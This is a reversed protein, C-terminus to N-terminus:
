SVFLRLFLKAFLSATVDGDALAYPASLGDSNALLILTIDRGPVKLVLSSSTDRVSGFHWVLREGNYSQVFWGLGSPLAVGTSTTANTWATARLEGHVLEDNDIASDFRALDLATSVLGTATTVRDTPYDARTAKGSRDVRYPAAMRLLVAEYRKCRTTTSSRAARACHARSRTGAALRAHGPPRLRGRRHHPPLAPRRVRRGREHARCLSGPRLPLCQRAGASAHALVQRVTATSEPIDSTWRRMPDDINLGTREICQGLVVAGFSQTLDGILYPTDARAAISKEIDQKGLGAAWVVHRGQVIAASLGPIASQERLSELYREFLSYPLGQAAPRPTLALVALLALVGACLSRM